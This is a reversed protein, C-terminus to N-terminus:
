IKYLFNKDKSTPHKKLYFDNVKNKKAFKIIKPFISKSYDDNFIFNEDIFNNTTEDILLISKKKINLKLKIKKQFLEM